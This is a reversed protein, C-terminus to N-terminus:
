QLAVKFLMVDLLELALETVFGESELLIALFVLVCMSALLRVGAAGAGHNEALPSLQREMAVCHVGLLHFGDHGGRLAKGRQRQRCTVAIVSQLFPDVCFYCSKCSLLIGILHLIVSQYVHSVKVLGPAVAWALVVKLDRIVPKM